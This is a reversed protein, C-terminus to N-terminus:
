NAQRRPFRGCDGGGAGPLAPTAPLISEQLKDTPAATQNRFLWGAPLPTKAIQRGCRDLNGCVGDKNTNAFQHERHTDGSTGCGVKSQRVSQPSIAPYRSRVKQSKADTM